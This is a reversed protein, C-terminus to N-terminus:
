KVIIIGSSPAVYVDVIWPKYLNKNYEREVQVTAIIGKIDSTDELISIVVVGLDEAQFARSIIGDYTKAKYTETINYTTKTEEELISITKDTMNFVIEIEEIWLVDTPLVPKEISNLMIVGNYKSKLKFVKFDQANGVLVSLMIGLVVALKKM